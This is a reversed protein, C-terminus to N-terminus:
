DDENEDDTEVIRRHKKVRANKPRGRKKKEDIDSPPLSTEKARSQSRTRVPEIAIPEEIDSFEINEHMLSDGGGGQNILENDGGSSMTVDQAIAEDTVHAAQEYMADVVDRSGKKSRYFKSSSTIQLQTNNALSGSAQSHTSTYIIHANIRTQYM